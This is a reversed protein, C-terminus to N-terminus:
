KSHAGTGTAPCALLWRQSARAPRAQAATRPARRRPARPCPGAVRSPRSSSSSSAPPPPQPRAATAAGGSRSTATATSVRGAPSAARTTTPARTSPFRTARTRTASSTVAAGATIGGCSTTSSDSAPLTMVATPKLTPRHLPPMNTTKTKSFLAWAM